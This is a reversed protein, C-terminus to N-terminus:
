FISYNDIILNPPTVSEFYTADRSNTLVKRWTLDKCYKLHTPFSDNTDFIVGIVSEEAFFGKKVRVYRPIAM